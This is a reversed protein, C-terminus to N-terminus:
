GLKLICPHALDYFYLIGDYRLTDCAHIAIKMDFRSYKQFLM